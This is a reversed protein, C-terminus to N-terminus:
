HCYKLLFVRFNTEM